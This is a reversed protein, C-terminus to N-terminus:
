NQYKRSPKISQNQWDIGNLNFDGYLIINCGENKERVQALSLDLNELVDEKSHPPRYFSGVILPKAKKFQHIKCWVIECDADCNAM